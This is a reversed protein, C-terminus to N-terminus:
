KSKEEESEHGARDTTTLERFVAELSKAELKVERVGLSERVCESVLKEVRDSASGDQDVLEILARSVKDELSQVELLVAGECRGLARELSAREGRFVLSLGRKDSSLRTRIEDMTGQAAVRGKSLIIVRSCTAEVEPLIHTSIVITHEKGLSKILERVEVIQNPDLSATPEDLILVPPNAVIADALAVRQKYGKSLEGVLWKAREEIKTLEMARAVAKKRAGGYARVGKLEARFSLFEEVRLEPYVPVSEPMYGLKSRAAISDEQVDLGDITVTGETPPLYGAMMRLTTSKGAGNPGLFGVIHGKPIEFSIGDVATRTGYRKTLTTAVILAERWHRDAACEHEHHM